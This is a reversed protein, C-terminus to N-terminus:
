FRIFDQNRQISQRFLKQGAWSELADLFRFLIMHYDNTVSDNNIDFELWENWFADLADFLEFDILKLENLREKYKFKENPCAKCALYKGIYADVAISNYSDDENKFSDSILKTLEPELKIENFDHLFEEAIYGLKVFENLMKVHDLCNGIHDILGESIFQYLLSNEIVFMRLGSGILIEKSRLDLHLLEHTFSSSNFEIESTTITAIDKIVYMSFNPANKRLVKIKFTASLKEWLIINRSELLGLDVLEDKNSIDIFNNM